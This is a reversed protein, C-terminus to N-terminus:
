KEAPMDATTPWYPNQYLPSDGITQGDSATVLFQNIPLPTLYHAMHWHFGDYGVQKNNIQYPRIYPYDKSSINEGPILTSGGEPKDYWHEMPTGWIHIGEIHYPTTMMQDMARWRCLDMYRLGEAMLECRRERRINYLTKDTLITGASYAGWDNKAEENMDTANITQDITGTIGARQRLENWYTDVKGGRTGHLEYYAEMYNLLAESARYCIAATYGGGNRYHKQDFSGGKRLAYGTNYGREGNSEVLNPYPEVISAEVGEPNPYLINKQGPEKLFLQLRQDRNKRVDAITKDGYYHVGDGDAYTGYAYVPKGELTLFSNVFGRTTGNMQNGRNAQVNVNHEVLGRGYQRWLLVEKVSSLDEQAFMDYYPNPTGNPDQQLEGTNITLDNLYMDAIEESAKVAEGLFYEIEKDINGAKFQYSKNYEKSAGPWGEGNPVFATGKFYKLWTGEFLAVRSYLLRAADKNIRTTAMDKDKMYDYAKQLDDLIFRAVETRPMRKNSERLVEMDDALPKTIIPMDGYKQYRKFYESARLFYIEGIYHKIAALDGTITNESGDLKTGFKELVEDLFFNCRYIWEFKWNDKDQNPVRWRGDAYRDHASSGTQNDTGSDEGFIGYSWNTHGPLIEPYLQNAYSELQSASTFYLEPDVTSMPERDLFDECSAFGAALALALMPIYLRNTKM